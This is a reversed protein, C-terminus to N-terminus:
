RRDINGLPGDPLSSDRRVLLAASVGASVAAAVTWFWWRRYIPPRTPRDQGPRTVSSLSPAPAPPPERFAPPEVRAAVPPPPTSEAPPAPTPAPADAATAERPRAALRARQDAILARAAERNPSRPALELYREYFFLARQANGLQRHCQAINFLFGPLPKADYAAEYATLAAEFNGLSFSKEARAFHARAENDATDAWVTGPVTGLLGVLSLAVTTSFM